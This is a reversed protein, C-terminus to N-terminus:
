RHKKKEINIDKSFDMEVWAKAALRICVFQLNYVCHLLFDKM